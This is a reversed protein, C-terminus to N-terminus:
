CASSSRRGFVVFQSANTLGLVKLMQNLLTVFFAAVWTSSPSALGGSLAAGGLVVAAVPGLLYSVGPDVGPSVVIGGIFIAALGAALAAGVYAGISTSGSASAPWGPRGGTPASRRSAADSRPRGCSSASRRAHPRRRVLVDQQRRVGQRHVFDALSDPVTTSNTIGARYETNIGLLILSTSLTVILPNLDLVAVLLGNVLGIMVAVVFVIVIAEALKDDSGKSVGVLM